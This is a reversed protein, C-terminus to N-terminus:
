RPARYQVQREIDKHRLLRGCPDWLLADIDSKIDRLLHHTVLNNKRYLIVNQDRRWQSSTSNSTNGVKTKGSQRGGSRCRGWSSICDHSSRFPQSRFKDGMLFNFPVTGIGGIDISKRQDTMLCTVDREVEPIGDLARESRKHRTGNSSTGSSSSWSSRSFPPLGERGASLGADYNSGQSSELKSSGLVFSVATQPHFSKLRQRRNIVTWGIFNPGWKEPLQETALDVIRKSDKIILAM